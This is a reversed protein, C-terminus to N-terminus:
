ANADDTLNELLTSPFSVIRSRPEKFIQTLRIKRTLDSEFTRGYLQVTAYWTMHVSYMSYLFICQATYM